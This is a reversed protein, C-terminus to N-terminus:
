RGTAAEVADLIGRKGMTTAVIAHREGAVTGEEAQGFERDPPQTEADADLADLRAIRLLVTAVFAHV